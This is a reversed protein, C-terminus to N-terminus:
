RVLLVAVATVAFGAIAVQIQPDTFLIRDPADGRRAGHLLLLYRFLAFGVFPITLAMSGNAPVHDSEITYLGYSLLATAATITVMQGLLELTYHALSPRHAAAAPGLERFEAWRKSTAFFLAGFTTCVYLWPSIAVDIATAGSVARAVFGSCLVLLDLIPVRRLGASYALMLAAYGALIAGAALDLASAAPLAVAFLVGSALAATRPRLDGAAIPRTRKRPHLRDAAADRIDNVLYTASAAMCWLLFLACSRWLLPWWTSADTAQWAEGASFALAAFVMGNKPWQYPRMAVLLPPLVAARGVVIGNLARTHDSGM